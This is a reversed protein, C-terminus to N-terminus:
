TMGKQQRRQRVAYLIAAPWWMWGFIFAVMFDGLLNKTKGPFKVFIFFTFLTAAWFYLRWENEHKTLFEQGFDSAVVTTLILATLLLVVIVSLEVKTKHTM